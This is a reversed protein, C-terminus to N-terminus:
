ESQATRADVRKSGPELVLRATHANRLVAWALVPAPLFTWPSSFMAGVILAINIVTYLAIAGTPLGGRERAFTAALAVIPVALVLQDFLWAWGTTLLSVTILIPAHQTWIWARRHQRWYFVFWVLGLSPPLWQLWFTDRDGLLKRVVAMVGSPFLHPYPSRLLELYQAFVSRDFGLVVLSAAVIAATSTMLAIRRQKGVSTLLFAIWVLFVAQPKVSALALAVGALAFRGKRELYLFAAIGLLLLCSTQGFKVALLTPYFTFVFLSRHLVTDSFEALRIDGFYVNMLMLSSGAICAILVLAWLFWAIPYSNAFGFLAFLALTWPPNLAVIPVPQRWGLAQEHRFSDPLSFPNRHNVLLHGATWYEVFDELPKSYAYAVLIGALCFVLFGIWTRRAVTGSSRM